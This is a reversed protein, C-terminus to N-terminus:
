CHWVFWRACRVVAIMDDINNDGCLMYLKVAKIFDGCIAFYKAAKGPDKAKEYHEAIQM